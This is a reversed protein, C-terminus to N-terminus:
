NPRFIMPKDSTEKAKSTKMGKSTLEGIISKLIYEFNTFGNSLDTEHILNKWGDLNSWDGGNFDYNGNPAFLVLRRGSPMANWKAELDSLKIETYYDGVLYPADTWLIVVQRHYGDDIGWDTKDFAFNLAELGSEPTDGGGDAYLHNVFNDFDGREEPLLYTKSSEIWTDGDVNKDRFAFVQTTLKSLLIGEEECSGKFLDYFEIANRKVTNIIGGMSGTADICMVVDVSLINDGTTFSKITTDYIVEDTTNGYKPILGGHDASNFKYYARYYYTTNPLFGRFDVDYSLDDKAQYGKGEYEAQGVFLKDKDTDCIIGYTGYDNYIYSPCFVTGSLTCSSGGVKFTAKGTWLSLINSVQQVNNNYWNQLNDAFQYNGNENQKLSAVYEDDTIYTLNCIKEFIQALKQIRAAVSPDKKLDGTNKKLLLAANALVAKLADDKNEGAFGPLNPKVYAISDLMFIEKGDDYLLELISDNPYSFYVVGETSVMQTPIQEKANAILCAYDDFAASTYAIANYNSESAGTEGAMNKKYSFYGLETVFAVDWDAIHTDLKIIGKVGTSPINPTDGGPTVEDFNSASFGLTFLVIIVASLFYNKKM